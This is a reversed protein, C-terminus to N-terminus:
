GTTTTTTATATTALLYCHDVVDCPCSADHASLAHLAQHNVRVRAHAYERLGDVSVELASKVM